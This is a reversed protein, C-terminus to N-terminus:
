IVNLIIELLGYIHEYSKHAMTTSRGMGGFISFILPTFSGLEVERIREKYQRRKEKEQTRYIAELSSNYYTPANPNCIRADLFTRQSSNGWFGQACIDARANAECNASGYVFQEGNLPQLTQNLPWM